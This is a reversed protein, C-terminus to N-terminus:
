SEGAHARELASEYAAQTRELVVAFTRAADAVSVTHGGDDAFPEILASLTEVTRPDIDTTYLANILPPHTPLIPPADMQEVATRVLQWTEFADPRRAFGSTVTVDCTDAGTIRSLQHTHVRDGSEVALAAAAEDADAANLACIITKM